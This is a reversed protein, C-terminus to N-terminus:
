CGSTIIKVLCNKWDKSKTGVSYFVVDEINELQCKQNERLLVIKLEKNIFNLVKIFASTDCFKVQDSVIVCKVNKAAPAIKYFEDSCHFNKFTFNLEEKLVGLVPWHDDISFVLIEPFVDKSVPSFEINKNSLCPHLKDYFDEPGKGLISQECLEVGKLLIEFDYIKFQHAEEYQKM